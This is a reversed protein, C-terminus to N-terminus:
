EKEATDEEVADEATALVRLMRDIGRKVAPDNLRKLLQFLSVDEPEDERAVAATRRLLSMVEPQTMEKVTRLMLVINDGLEHLEDEGFSTVIRDLVEAGGRAFEFYGRRELEDLKATLTVFADRSLPMVDATLEDWEARRVQAARAQDVLVAVQETLADIKADLQAVRDDTTTVTTM